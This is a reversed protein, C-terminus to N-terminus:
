RSVSDIWDQTKNQCVLFPATFRVFSKSTPTKHPDTEPRRAAELVAGGGGGRLIMRIQKEAYDEM